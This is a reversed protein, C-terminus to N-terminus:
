LLIQKKIRKILMIIRNVSPPGLSSYLEDAKPGELSVIYSYLISCIIYYLIVYLIYIFMNINQYVRCSYHMYVFVYVSIFSVFLPGVYMKYLCPLLYCM